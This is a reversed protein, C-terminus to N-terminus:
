IKPRRPARCIYADTRAPLNSWNPPLDRTPSFVASREGKPLQVVAGPVLAPKPARTAGRGCDFVFCGLNQNEADSLVVMSLKADGSALGM